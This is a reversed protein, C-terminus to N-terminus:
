FRGGGTVNVWGRSPHAELLGLRHELLDVAERLSAASALHELASLHSLANESRITLREARAELIELTKIIDYKDVTKRVYDVGVGGRKM